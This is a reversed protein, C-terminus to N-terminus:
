VLAETQGESEGLESADPEVSHRPTQVGLLRLYADIRRVLERPSIPKLMYGDFSADGGLDATSDIRASFAVLPIRHTAPDSKLMRSAQWGDLGPLGIDMLVLSPQCERTVRVAEVGNTAEKVEYGFHQLILGYVRRTDENDEALVVLPRSRM